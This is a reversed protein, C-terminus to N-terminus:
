CGAESIFGNPRFFLFSPSCLQLPDPTGMGNYLIYSPIAISHFNPSCTTPLHSSLPHHAMSISHKLSHLFISFSFFLFLFNSARTRRAEMRSSPDGLVHMQRLTHPARAEEGHYVCTRTANRKRPACILVMNRHLYTGRMSL